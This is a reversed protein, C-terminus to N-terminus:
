SITPERCDREAQEQQHDSDSPHHGFDERETEEVLEDFISKALTIEDEGKREQTDTM